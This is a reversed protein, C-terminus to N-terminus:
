SEYNMILSNLDDRNEIKIGERFRKQDAPSLTQYIIATEELQVLNGTEDSFFIKIVNNDYKILYYSQYFQNQRNDEAPKKEAASNKGLNEEAGDEYSDEQAYESVEQRQEASKELSARLTEEDKSGALSGILLLVAFIMIALISCVWLWTYNKKKRSFM